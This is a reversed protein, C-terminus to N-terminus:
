ARLETKGKSSTADTTAMFYSCDQVRSLASDVSIALANLFQERLFAYESRQAAFLIQNEELQTYGVSIVNPLVPDRAM